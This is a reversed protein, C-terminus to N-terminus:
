WVCYVSILKLRMWYVWYLRSWQEAIIRKIVVNSWWKFIWIATSFEFVFYIYVHIKIIYVCCFAAAFPMPESSWGFSHVNILTVKKWFCSDCWTMHGTSPSWVIMMTMLIMFSNKNINNTTTTAGHGCLWKMQIRFQLYIKYLYSIVKRPLLINFVNQPYVVCVSVCVCFHHRCSSTSSLLLFEFSQTYSPLQTCLLYVDIWNVM